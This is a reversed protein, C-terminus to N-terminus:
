YKNTETYQLRCPMVVVYKHPIFVKFEPKYEPPSHQSHQLPHGNHQGHFIAMKRLAQMCICLFAELLKRQFMESFAELLKGQVSKTCAELLKVQVTKTIIELLKGQVTKTITELL